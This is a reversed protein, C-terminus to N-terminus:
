RKGEPFFIGADKRFTELVEMVDVMDEGNGPRQIIAEINKM